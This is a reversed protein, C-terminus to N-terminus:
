RRGGGIKAARISTPVSIRVPEGAEGDRRAVLLKLAWDVMSSAKWVVAAPVAGGTFRRAFEREYCEEVVWGVTRFDREPVVELEGAVQLLVSM